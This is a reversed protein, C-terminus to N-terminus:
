PITARDDAADISPAASPLLSYVSVKADGDRFALNLRGSRGAREVWEPTTAVVHRVGRAFLDDLLAPAPFSPMRDKLTLFDNPFFGSYGQVMPRRHGIQEYMFLATREYNEVRHGTPFPLDVIPRRPDTNGRLWKIWAQDLSPPEFLRQKGPWAEAIALCAIVVVVTSVAWTGARRPWLGRGATLRRIGTWLGDLLNAALLAVAAQFFFAFRFPSRALGMGPHAKMVVRYPVWGTVAAAADSRLGPEADPFVELRPGLSLVFAWGALLVLFLTWRRRGRTLLGAAVGAAAIGIKLLGPGLMWLPRSEDKLGTPDRGAAPRTWPATLYDRPKASLDILLQEERTWAYERKAKWQAWLIPSSLGAALVGAAAMWGWFRWDLWRGWVLPALSLPLLVSLYMGWYNCAAYCLAAAIGLVAANLAKPEDRLAVLRDIVWLVGCLTTLQLVGLQWHVFPLAEAMAGGLAAPAAALGVRRLLRYGAAGNLTLVALLYVNYALPPGSLSALPAVILTTPQAESFAFAYRAPHFIPAHWYEVFGYKARDANWWVTWANLVPVASVGETGLPLRSSLSGALPWTLAVALGAFGLLLGFRGAWRRRDSTLSDAWPALSRRLPGVWAPGVRLM